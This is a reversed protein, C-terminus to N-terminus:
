IKFVQSQSEAEENKKQLNNLEFMLRKRQNEFDARITTIEVEYQSKVDTIKSTYTEENRQIFTQELSQITVEYQEKLSVNNKKLTDYETQLM